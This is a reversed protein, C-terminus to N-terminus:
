FKYSIGARVVNSSVDINSTTGGFNYDQSGYDAYLYEVRATVNPTIMGELGAGVTWGTHTNSESFGANSVDVDAFAVGGTGYALFRDFAFGARGRISSTWNINANGTTSGPTFTGDKDFSTGDVDGEIGVLFQPTVMYNAGAHFGGTFASGDAGSVGSFDPDFDGGLWGAHLGLYIGTWDYIQVPAAQVPASYTEQPLDAALAPAAALCLGAGAIAFRRMVMM